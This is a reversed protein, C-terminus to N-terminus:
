RCAPPRAKGREGEGLWAARYFLRNIFFCGAQITGPPAAQGGCCTSASRPWWGRGLLAAPATLILLPWAAPTQYGSRRDLLKGIQLYKQRVSWSHRTTVM